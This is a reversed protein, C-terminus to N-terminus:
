ENVDLGMAEKCVVEITSEEEQEERLFTLAEILSGLGGRTM